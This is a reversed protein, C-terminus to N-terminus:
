GIRRLQRRPSYNLTLAALTHAEDHTADSMFVLSVNSGIGNMDIPVYAQSRSSWQFRNWESENWFGGSGFIETSVENGAPKDPDGYSYDASVSVTTSFGESDVELVAGPFRKEMNPSNANLFSTRAYAEVVAGDMSTGVDMQYVMGDTDGALLIENGDTDEGSFFVNPTFGMKLPMCEPNKRGFYISIGTGDEYFLRYIDRSRVRLTGVPLVGAKRKNRILPEILQTTTGIRWNGFSDSASMDRVGRDDLFLPIGVVELTDTLAGSDESIDLVQFDASSTGTIYAVKNRGTIITATKTNSKIGTIDEGIGLEGAGDLARWQLPLGTGSYQISGGDYGLLLHDGVVGVFKPKDLASAVGTSIPALVTGDWEHAQGMGNVIYARRLNSVGFFNHTKVRYKGGAPLTIAEAVGNAAASGGASTITEGDTYTGTVGSLVVYGVATGDWAGEQLVIREVTATAGSTGGTLMDGEVFEVTGADFSLTSGFSQASWGATTAKYLVAATAGANDRVAYIDGKYTFVGRTPGSGTIALISTRRAAVAARRYTEDDDDDDAGAESAIGNAVAVTSASVQLNEDDEFTGSVNYLIVDGAADSGGYTGSTVIGDVLAIGTAGSTAGTVTDGSAIEVTGADFGLVWYTAASPKPQGDLREYGVFRKYGRVESEYNQAAICAGPKIGLPTTVLDLGGSFSIIKQSIM